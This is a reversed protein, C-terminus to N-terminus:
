KETVLGGTIEGCYHYASCFIKDANDSRIQNLHENTSFRYVLAFMSMMIGSLHIFM